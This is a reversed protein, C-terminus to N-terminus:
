YLLFPRRKAAFARAQEDWGRTIEEFSAGADVQQRFRANGVLRNIGTGVWKFQDPHLIRIEILAAVAVKTPDYSSRDTVIFRLGRNLQGDYRNDGPKVPTWEALEFRIGAFRYSNLRALLRVNDLWPAGLIQFATPTGRGVSVNVGEFLCLGPYHTASEIDPMNPSPKIWPMGTQDYYQARRWNAAPIVVLDAGIKFEANIWKALEGVTMGHRMPVPYLGVFTLTDNVNGQVLEGGIPNPRDLVVFRQNNEAAAKLALAMTWPYTYYRAGIDQIDFILADLGELMPPTPKQTQGYLSLIPLGTKEDVENSIRVGGEAAGRIGHEPAFLKVLKLRADASLADITSRGDRLKGTHNTILGVRMGRLVAMDGALLVEIGPSVSEVVPTQASACAALAMVCVMYQLVHFRRTVQIM